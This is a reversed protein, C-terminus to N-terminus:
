TREDMVKTRLLYSRFIILYSTIAGTVALPIWALNDDPLMVLASHLLYFIPVCVLLPAVLMAPENVRYQSFIRRSTSIALIIYLFVSSALVGAAAGELGYNITLYLLLPILFVLAIIRSYILIKVNKFVMQVIIPMNALSYFMYAISLFVLVYYLDNAIVSSSLWFELVQPAFTILAIVM